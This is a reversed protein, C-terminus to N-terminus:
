LRKWEKIKEIGENLSQMLEQIRELELLLKEKVETKKEDEEDKVITEEKKPILIIKEVERGNENIGEEPIPETDKDTEDELIPNELHEGM